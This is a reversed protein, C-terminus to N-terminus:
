GMVRLWHAWGVPGGASRSDALLLYKDCVPSNLRPCSLFACAKMRCHARLTGSLLCGAGCLEEGLVRLALFLPTLLSAPHFPSTRFVSTRLVATSLRGRALVQLRTSTASSDGAPLGLPRCETQLWGPPQSM